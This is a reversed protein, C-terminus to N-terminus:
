RQQGNDETVWVLHNDELRAQYSLASAMGELALERVRGALEPDDVLVGVETNWLLSRSDFNFSGVFAKQKDFVMAKTHLSSDS